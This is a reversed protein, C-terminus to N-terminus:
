AVFLPRARLVMGGTRRRFELRRIGRLIREYMAGWTAIRADAKLFPASHYLSGYLLADFYNSLYDTTEGSGGADSLRTVVKVYDLSWAHGAATTPAYVLQSGRRYAAFPISGSYSARLNNLEDPSVITFDRPPDSDVSFRRLYLCDAPLTLEGSADLTGTATKDQFTCDTERELDAEALRIFDPIRSVVAADTRALWDAVAVQLDGYTAFSV